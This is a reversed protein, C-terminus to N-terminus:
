PIGAQRVVLTFRQPRFASRPLNEIVIVCAEITPLHAKEILRLDLRIQQNGTGKLEEFIVEDRRSGTNVLATAISAACM